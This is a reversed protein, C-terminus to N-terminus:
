ESTGGAKHIQITGVIISMKLGEEEMFPINNYHNFKDTQHFWTIRWVYIDDHAIDIRRERESLFGKSGTSADIIMDGVSLTVCEALDRLDNMM